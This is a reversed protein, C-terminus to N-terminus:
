EQFAATNPAKHERVPIVWTFNEVIFVFLQKKLVTGKTNLDPACFGIIPFFIDKNTVLQTWKCCRM